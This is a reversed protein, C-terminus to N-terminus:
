LFDTFHVQYAVQRIKAMFGGFDPIIIKPVKGWKSFFGYRGKLYVAPDVAPIVVAYALSAVEDIKCNKIM